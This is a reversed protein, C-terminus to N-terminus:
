PAPAAEDLGGAAARAAVYERIERFDGVARIDWGPWGAPAESLAVALTDEHSPLLLLVRRDFDALYGGEIWCDAMWRELPVAEGFTSVLTEPGDAAKLAVRRGNSSTYNVDLHRNYILVKYAREGM